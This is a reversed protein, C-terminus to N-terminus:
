GGQTPFQFIDSPWRSVHQTNNEISNEACKYSYENALINKMLYTILWKENNDSKKSGNVFYSM